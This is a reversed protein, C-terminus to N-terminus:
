ATIGADNNFKATPMNKKANENFSFCRDNFRKLCWAMYDKLIKSYECPDNQELEQVEEVTTSLFEALNRYEQTKKNSENDLNVM